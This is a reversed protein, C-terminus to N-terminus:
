KPPFYKLLTAKYHALAQPPVSYHVFHKLIDIREFVKNMDLIFTPLLKLHTDAEFM